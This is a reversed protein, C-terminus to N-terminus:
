INIQSNNISIVTRFMGKAKDYSWSMKGDYKSLSNNISIVTGHSNGDNKGSRLMGEVVIPEKDAYNEVKIVSFANNVTYLDIFIDKRASNSCAEIANNILNSFIAVTDMGGIFDLKPNTSTINLKIGNEECEKKKRILLINLINNDSYKEIKSDECEKEIKGVYEQAKQIDESILTKLVNLHERFDHNMIRSHEYKENLTKYEELEIHNKYNEDELIKIKRNKSLMLENVGFTVFNLTIAVIYISIFVRNDLNLPYIMLICGVTVIPMIVLLMSASELSLEKRNVIKRVIYIETLYILKGGITILISQQPTIDLLNKVDFGIRLIYTVITEGVFMFLTVWVVRMMATKINIKYGIIFILFNVILFGGVNIMMRNFLAFVFLIAYGIFTIVSSIYYNKKPQLTSNAFYLMIIFELAVGIILGADIRM